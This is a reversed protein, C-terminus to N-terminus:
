ALGVLIDTSTTGTAKIRTAGYFPISEGAALTITRDTGARTTVVIDGGDNSLIAVVVSFDANTLNDTSDNPTVPMWDSPIGSFVYNSNAM